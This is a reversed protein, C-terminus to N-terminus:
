RQDYTGLVGRRVGRVIAVRVHLGLEARQRQARAHGALVRALGHRLVVGGDARALRDLAPHAPVAVGARYQPGTSRGYWSLLAGPWGAPHADGARPGGM